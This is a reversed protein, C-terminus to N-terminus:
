ENRLPHKLYRREISRELSSLRNIAIALPTDEPSANPEVFVVFLEM